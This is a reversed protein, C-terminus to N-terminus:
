AGRRTYTETRAGRRRSLAYLGIGAMLGAAVLMPAGSSVPPPVSVVGHEDALAPQRVYRGRAPKAYDDFNAALAELAATADPGSMPLGHGTALVSPQLGALRQVSLKAAEWDSTYYAPPGNLEVRQTLVSFFSEQRTTVFADGAILVRDEDRFFSVHGPTHGPTYIWRWGPLSPITGDEHLPRLREAIDIPGRPYTCSMLAMAGRGVSPDPPPYKARGTLYPFELRHAYVPVQWQQALERVGGIHDFHGHTLLICSPPVPGFIQEAWRRIRNASFYLGTDILAWSGDNAAVAYANVMVIRIGHVGGAILGDAPSGNSALEITHPM